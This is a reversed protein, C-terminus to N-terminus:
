KLADRDATVGAIRRGDRVFEQGVIIISATEPLGGVWIGDPTDHMIAVPLFRATGGDDVRVGMQGEDNLTLASQPILHATEPPLEIKLEATMGDRILGDSNDITVEVTFTRTENDASRALFTIEGEATVGNILRARAPQGLSLLDVEQEAVFGTVKVKSLDIVNACYGGPTLLSGIEATDSELVGDFPALIELNEIDRRVKDLRAEAAQLQAERARLTTEATYGKQQLRTAASAEVTAEALAAEAEALEAPRVGPDLRCLVQGKEVQAGRRLPESIVRGTIEAPVQVNRLAETRGRLTLTAVTEQAKSDIVLVPVPADVAPPAPAEAVPAEEEVAAASPAVVGDHRGAFWYWLGAAILLALFLSTVRM